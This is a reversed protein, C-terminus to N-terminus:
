PRMSIIVTSLTFYTAQSSTLQPVHKPYRTDTSLLFGSIFDSALFDPLGAMNVKITFM